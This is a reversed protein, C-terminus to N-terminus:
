VGDAPALAYDTLAIVFSIKNMAMVLPREHAYRRRAASGCQPLPLLAARAIASWAVQCKTGPRRAASRAAAKLRLCCHRKASQHQVACPCFRLIDRTRAESRSRSLAM